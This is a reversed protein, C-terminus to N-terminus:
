RTKEKMHTVGELRHHPPGDRALPCRRRAPPQPARSM